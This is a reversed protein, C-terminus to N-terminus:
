GQVTWRTNKSTTVENDTRQVLAQPDLSLVAKEIQTLLVNLGAVQPVGNLLQVNQSSFAYRFRGDPAAQVPVLTADWIMERKKTVMDTIHTSATTATFEYSGNSRADIALSGDLFGLQALRARAVEVIKAASDVTTTFTTTQRHWGKPRDVMDGSAKLAKQKQSARIAYYILVGFAIVTIFVLVTYM